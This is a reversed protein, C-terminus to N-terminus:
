MVEGWRRLAGTSGGMVTSGGKGEGQRVECRKVPVRSAPQPLPRATRAAQGRREERSRSDEPARLWPHPSTCSSSLVQVQGGAREKGRWSAWRALSVERLRNAQLASCLAARTARASEQVLRLLSLMSSTLWHGSM